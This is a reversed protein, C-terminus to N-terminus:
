DSIYSIEVCDINTRSSNLVTYVPVRTYVPVGVTSYVFTGRNM